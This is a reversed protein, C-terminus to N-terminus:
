KKNGCTVALLTVVAGAGGVQVCWVVVASTGDTWQIVDTDRAAWRGHQARDPVHGVAGAHIRTLHAKGAEETQGPLSGPDTGLTLVRKSPM